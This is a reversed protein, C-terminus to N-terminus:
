DSASGNSEETEIKPRFLGYGRFRGRGVLVPGLVRQKFRAIVHTQYRCMGVGGEEFPPVALTHGAGEFLSVSRLWVEEPEPLLASVFAERVIREADGPRGKKPYHHLVVPTVSAWVDYPETWTKARLTLPPYQRKERELEWKWTEEKQWLVVPREEANENFFMRGLALRIADAKGELARPLALGMGMIHGDAHQRGVFPLPFFAAHPKLSPSGDEAHGSLWEPPADPKSAKMAAHRLAGTVSLTASLGLTRGETITLVFFDPDFPGNVITELARDSGQRYGQWKTLQPRSWAPKGGPFEQEIQRKLDARRAGKADAHERSLRDFRLFGEANLAADFSELSGMSCVRMREPGREDPLWNPEPEAGPEVVWMQVLSSSHGIRTVKHCLANLARRVDEPPDEQWILYAHDDELWAKRLMREQRSRAVIGDSSDNVPVYTKVATRERCGGARLAPPNQAEIWRLATREEPLAGTEYHAAAMAMFVRGSHVPWESRERALNTAASYGCLYRIGLAIM